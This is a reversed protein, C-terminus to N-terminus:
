ALADEALPLRGPQPAVRRIITASRRSRGIVGRQARHTHASGPGVPQSRYGHVFGLSRSGAANACYEGHGLAVVFGLALGLGRALVGVGRAVVRQRDVAGDAPRHHGPRPQQDGRRHEAVVGGVRRRRVVAHGVAGGARRRDLVPDAREARVHRVLDVVREAGARPQRHRPQRGVQDDGRQASRHLLVRQAGRAEQDHRDADARQDVQAPRQQRAGFRRRGARRAPPQRHQDVILQDAVERHRPRRHDQRDREPDARQQRHVLQHQRHRARDPARHQPQPM